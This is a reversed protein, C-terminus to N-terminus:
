LIRDGRKTKKGGASGASGAALQGCAAMIEQGRSLRVNAQVGKSYLYDSWWSVVGEEPAKLGSGEFPNFPILNVKARVGKLLAALRKADEKADNVGGILVYEFTIRHRSRASYERGFEMIKEIPYRRNIPMLKSRVEDTTANLSIAIRIDHRRSFEDLEPLLGCTSLTVRRKSFGMAEQDVMIEVAGEVAEMNALTEGMGMIVVNTVPGGSHGMAITLQGLIEGQTLNRALGLSATRCFLCGMACGAQTSVCVTVRGEEVPILVCEVAAGDGARCLFKMTGDSATQFGALEVPRIAFRSKLLERVPKAINTMEDFSAARRAYLWEVLQRAVYPKLGLELALMPFDALAIDM